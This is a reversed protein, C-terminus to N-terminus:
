CGTSRPFRAVRPLTLKARTSALVLVAVNRAVLAAAFPGDEFLAVAARDRHAVAVDLLTMVWGEPTKRIDSIREFKGAHEQHCGSCYSRVLEQGSVATAGQAASAGLSALLLAAASSKWYKEVGISM